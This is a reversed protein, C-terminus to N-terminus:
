TNLAQSFIRTAMLGLPTHHRDPGMQAILLEMMAHKSGAAALAQEFQRGPNAAGDADNAAPAHSRLLSRPLHQVAPTPAQALQQARTLARHSAVRRMPAVVESAPTEIWTRLLEKEYANFVGFMSARPGDLLMWFRSSAAPAGRAIWGGETMAALFAPIHEPERLWENVTRGGIKCYDSHLNQGAVAKASLIRHLEQELDFGGIVSSTSAGLDNLRFGAAVRQYFAAPDASRAALTQVATIAKAAHGTSGNDITVHLTFYYPDIGLANLEYGTILLHLPLQEYGLNYGLIEPLFEEPLAALALQIAGQVYHDDPLDLPLEEEQSALLAQYLSVHNHERRGDGLEELYTRILGHCAPDQWHKLMGYLWAGDVLKTPAVARIFHMAAARNAFYAPPAGAKRRALYAQYATAVSAAQHRSWAELEDPPPLDSALAASQELRAHLLSRALAANGDCETRLALYCERSPAPMGASLKNGDPPHAFAANGQM